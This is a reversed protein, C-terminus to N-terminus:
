NKAEEYIPAANEKDPVPPPIVEEPTMKVGQATAYYITRNLRITARLNAIAHFGFSILFVALSLMLVIKGSSADKAIAKQWVLFGFALFLAILVPILLCTFIYVNPSILFLFIVFPIVLLLGFLLIFPTCLIAPLGNKLLLSSFCAASYVIIFLFFFYITGLFLQNVPITILAEPFDHIPAILLGIGLLVLIILLALGSFYKLWFLRSATVPQSFLFQKTNKTFENTFSTAGLFLSFLLPLLLLSMLLRYAEYDLFREPILNTVTRSLIIIGVALFFFLRHERWEKWILTKM